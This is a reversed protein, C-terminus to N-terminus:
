ELATEKVIRLARSATVVLIGDDNSYGDDDYTPDTMWAAEELKEVVEEMPKRTNWFKIAEEESCIFFRTSLGCSTCMVNRATCVVDEHSVYKSKIEAEGGCIPCKLLKVESM